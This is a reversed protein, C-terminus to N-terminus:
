RCCAYTYGARAVRLFFDWHSQSQVVQDFAGVAEVCARRILVSGILMTEGLALQPLIEGELTTGSPRGEVDPWPSDLQPPIEEEIEPEGWMAPRGNKDMWYYWGYALSVDPRTNLLNVLTELNHPLMLDDSDLFSVVDGQSAYFGANRAATEGANNQYFYKVPDGFEGVVEATNDTSGNDLVVIEWASYTQDFVSQIAGGIYEAGNYTSIIVSVKPTRDNRRMM